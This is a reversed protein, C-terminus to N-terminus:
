FHEPYLTMAIRSEVSYESREELETALIAVAAQLRKVQEELSPKRFQGQPGLMYEEM